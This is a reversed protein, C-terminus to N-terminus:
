NMLARELLPKGHVELCISDSWWQADVVNGPTEMPRFSRDTVPRSGSFKAGELDVPLAPAKPGLIDLSALARDRLIVIGPLGSNRGLGRSFTVHHEILSPWARLTVIEKPL